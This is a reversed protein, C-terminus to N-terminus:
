DDLWGCSECIYSQILRDTAVPCDGENYKCGHLFCCHETHVDLKQDKPKSEILDFISNLVRGSADKFAEDRAKIKNRIAIQAANVLGDNTAAELATQFYHEPTDLHKQIDFMAQISNTYLIGIGGATNWADINAQREDV